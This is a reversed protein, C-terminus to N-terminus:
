PDFIQMVDTFETRCIPCMGELGARCEPAGCLCRHGCPFLAVVRPAVLCFVCENGEGEGPVAARESAIQAMADELDVRLRLFAPRAGPTMAWCARMVAYVADPCGAPQKLHRGQQVQQAVEADSHLEGWALAGQAWMEWLTVGLAFVDSQETYRRWLIAEPAMWRVPGGVGGRASVTSVSAGHVSLGYDTLKVTVARRDAPMAFVLVNRAALDRHIVQYQALQAMGDCIQMAATLLVDSPVAVGAEAQRQLFADLSGQEAYETLMCEQGADNTTIALLQTLYPHKGLKEFVSKEARLSGDRFVLLAM